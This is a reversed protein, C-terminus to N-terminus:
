SMNLSLLVADWDKHRLFADWEGVFPFTVNAGQQHTGSMTGKYPVGVPFDGTTKNWNGSLQVSSDADDM